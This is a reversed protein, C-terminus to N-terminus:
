LIELKKADDCLPDDPYSGCFLMCGKSKKRKPYDIVNNMKDRNYQPYKIDLVCYNRSSNKINWEKDFQQSFRHLANAGPLFSEKSLNDEYIDIIAQHQKKTGKERIWSFVGDPTWDRFSDLEPYIIHGSFEDSIFNRIAKLVIDNTEPSKTWRYGQKKETM